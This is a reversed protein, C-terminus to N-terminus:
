LQNQFIANLNKSSLMHLNFPRTKKVNNAQDQALSLKDAKGAMELSKALEHLFHM